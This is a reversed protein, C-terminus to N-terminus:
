ARALFLDIAEQYLAVMREIDFTNVDALFADWQSMDREGTIFQLMYTATLSSVDTFIGRYETQADIDWVAGPVAKSEVDPDHLWLTCADIQKQTYGMYSRSNINVSAPTGCTYKILAIAFELGDPNNLVLDTYEPEGNENFEFSIGEVGYNELLIGEDSYCYDILQCALAVDPNNYSVAAGGRSILSSGADDFANLDGEHLVVRKVPTVEAEPLLASLETIGRVSTNFFVSQMQQDTSANVASSSGSMFDPSIFGEAYWDHLLQVYEKFRDMTVCYKVQGDEFIFGGIEGNVGGTYAIDYATELSSSGTTQVWLPHQAYGAEQVATLVRHLDDVTVPIELGLADLWDRRVCPGASPERSQMINPALALNGDATLTNRAIDPNNNIIDFLNPMIEEYDSFNVIIDGEILDDMNGSYFMGFSFTIDPIDNAAVMLSIENNASLLNATTFEFTIGTREQLTKYVLGDKGYDAICQAAIVPPVLYDWATMVVNDTTLPLSEAETYTRKINKGSLGNDAAEEPELGKGEASSDESATDEPTETDEPTSPASQEASVTEESQPESESTEAVSLASGATSPASNSNSDSGCGGLLSVLLAFLLLIMLFRKKM